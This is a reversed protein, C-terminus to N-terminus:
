RLYVSTLLVNETYVLPPSKENLHSIGESVAGPMCLMVTMWGAESSYAAPLTDAVNGTRRDTSKMKGASGTACMAYRELASLEICFNTSSFARITSPWPSGGSICIM